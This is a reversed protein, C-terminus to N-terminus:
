SQCTPCYVTGRGGVRTGRLPTKCRTCPCGTKRYVAHATQASGEEGYIDRYNRSSSGRAQIAAHLTVNLAKHLATIEQLTLRPIKRSPRIGAKFLAEQAYINGIGALVSQDLLVAQIPGKKLRVQTQFIKLSVDLADPGLPQKAPGTEKPGLLWIEGFRRQDVFFLTRHDTFQVRMRWVMPPKTTSQVLLQGTMRLHVILRDGGSLVIELYKGFRQFSKLTKGTLRRQWKKAIASSLLRPDRVEFRAIVADKLEKELGRRITEVEPLEPM